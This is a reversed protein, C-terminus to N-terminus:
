EAEEVDAPADAAKIVEAEVTITLEFRNVHPEAAPDDDM